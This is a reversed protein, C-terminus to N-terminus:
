LLKEKNLIIFINLVFIYDINNVLHICSSAELNGWKINAYFCIARDHSM